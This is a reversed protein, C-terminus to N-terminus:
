NRASRAGPEGNRKVRRKGAYRECEFFRVSTERGAYEDRCRRGDHGGNECRLRRKEPQPLDGIEIRYTDVRPERSQM